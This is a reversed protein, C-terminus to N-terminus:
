GILIRQWQDVPAKGVLDSKRIHGLRNALTNLVSRLPAVFWKGSRKVVVFELPDEPHELWSLDGLNPARVGFLDAVVQPIERGCHQSVEQEVTAIVCNGDLAV